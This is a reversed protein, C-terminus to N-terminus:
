QLLNLEKLKNILFEKFIGDNIETEWCEIITWGRDELYKKKAKDRGFNRRQIKDKPGESYIRPDVHYYTGNCEIGIKHEPLAFDLSYYKVQYEELPKEKLNLTSLFERMKIHIGSERKFLGNRYREATAIRMKEISKKSHKFGTHGHIKRKKASESQKKRSEESTIRGTRKQAAIKISPNRKDKGRNWASKGFMPNGKGKREKSIKDCSEAFKPSFEKSICGKKFKSLNIGKGDIKYGVEEGSIPCKPWEINLYKKCYEKLSLQYNDKIFNSFKNLYYAGHQRTPYMEVILYKPTNNILCTDFLNIKILNLTEINTMSIM